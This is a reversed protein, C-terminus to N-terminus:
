DEEDLGTKDYLHKPIDIWENSGPGHFRAQNLSESTASGNERSLRYGIVRSVEYLESRDFDSDGFRELEPDIDGIYDLLDDTDSGTLHFNTSSFYVFETSELDKSIDATDNTVDDCFSNVDIEFSSKYYSGRLARIFADVVTKVNDYAPFGEDEPDSGKEDRYTIVKSAADLTLLGGDELEDEVSSDIKRHKKFL